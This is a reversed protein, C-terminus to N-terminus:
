EMLPEMHMSILSPVTCTVYEIAYSEISKQKAWSCAGLTKATMTGTVNFNPAGGISKTQLDVTLEGDEAPTINVFTKGPITAWISPSDKNGM